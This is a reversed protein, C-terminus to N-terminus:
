LLVSGQCLYRIHSLNQPLIYWGIIRRSLHFRHIQTALEELGAILVLSTMRLAGVVNKLLAISWFQDRIICTQKAAVM